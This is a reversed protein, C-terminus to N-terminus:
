FSSNDNSAKEKRLMLPVIAIAIASLFLTFHEVMELASPAFSKLVSAANSIFFFAMSLAFYKFLPNNKLHNAGIIVLVAISVCFIAIVIDNSIHEIYNIHNVVMDM